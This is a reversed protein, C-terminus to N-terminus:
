ALNKLPDRMLGNTGWRLLVKNIFEKPKIQQHIEGDVLHWSNEKKFVVIGGTLLVIEKAICPLMEIGDISICGYKKEENQVIGVGEVILSCYSFYKNVLLQGHENIYIYKGQRQAHAWGESFRGVYDLELEKKLQNQLDIQDIEEQTEQDLVLM